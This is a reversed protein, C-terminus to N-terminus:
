KTWEEPYTEQWRSTVLQDAAGEKDSEEEVEWGKLLCLAIRLGEVVGNYHVREVYLTADNLLKNRARYFRVAEDAVQEVAQDVDTAPGESATM